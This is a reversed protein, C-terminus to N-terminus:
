DIDKDEVNPGISEEDDADEDTNEDENDDSHDDENQSLIHKNESLDNFDNETQKESQFAQERGKKSLCSKTKPGSLWYYDNLSSINSLSDEGSGKVELDSQEALKVNDKKQSLLSPNTIPSQKQPDGTDHYVLSPGWGRTVSLHESSFPRPVHINTYMKYTESHGTRIADTWSMGMQYMEGSDESSIKRPRGKKNPLSLPLQQLEMKVEEKFDVGQYVTTKFKGKRKIIVLPFVIRIARNCQMGWYLVDPEDIRKHLVTLLDDRSVSCEMDDSFQVLNHLHELIKELDQSMDRLPQYQMLEPDSLDDAPEQVQEIFSVGFFYTKKFKGKRQALTDPFIERVARNCAPGWHIAEPLQAVSSIKQLLLDRSVNGKPFLCILDTLCEKIKNVKWLEKGESGFLPGQENVSNGQEHQFEFHTRYEQIKNCGFSCLSCRYMFESDSKSLEPCFPPGGPPSIHPSSSSISKSNPYSLRDLFPLPSDITKKGKEVSKNSLNWLIQNHIQNYLGFPFKTPDEDRYGISSLTMSPNGPNHYGQIHNSDSDSNVHLAPRCSNDLKPRVEANPSPKNEKSYRKKVPTRGSHFPRSRSIDPSDSESDSSQWGDRDSSQNRLSIPVSRKRKNQRESKNRESIVPSHVTSFGNVNEVSLNVPSETMSDCQKEKSNQERKPTPSPSKEDGQEEACKLKEKHVKGQCHSQFHSKIQSKWNCVQCFYVINGGERVLKTFKGFEPTFGPSFIMSNGAPKSRTSNVALIQDAVAHIKSLNNTCPHQRVSNELGYEINVKPRSEPWSPEMVDSVNQGDLNMMFPREMSQASINTIESNVKHGISSYKDCETNIMNVCKEDKEVEKEQKSISSEDASTVEEDQPHSDPDEEGKFAVDVCHSSKSHAYLDEETEFSLSCVPCRTLNQKFHQGKVHSVFSNKSTLISPLTTCLTCKYLIEAFNMINDVSESFAKEIEM